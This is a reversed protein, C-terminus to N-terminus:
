KGELNFPKGKGLKVFYKLDKLFHDIKAAADKRSGAVYTKIIKGDSNIVPYRYLKTM